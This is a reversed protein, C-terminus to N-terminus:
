GYSPIKSNKRVCTVELQKGEKNSAEQVLLGGENVFTGLTGNTDYFTFGAQEVSVITVFHDIGAFGNHSSTWYNCGVVVPRGEKLEETIYIIAEETNAQIEESVGGDENRVTTYRRQNLNTCANKVLNWLAVSPDFNEQKDDFGATVNQQVNTIGREKVYALYMADIKPGAM